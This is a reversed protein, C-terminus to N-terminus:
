NYDSLLKVFPLNVRNVLKADATIFDCKKEKALVIYCADYVSVHYKKSFDVAKAIFTTTVAEITLGTKDLDALFTKIKAPKLKTKTAWANGLEYLIIDPASITEKHHVHLELLKLAFPLDKEQETSFWKFVVSTDCVVM